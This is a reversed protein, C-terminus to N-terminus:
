KIGGVLEALEMVCAELEENKAKLEEYKEELTPEIIIEEKPFLVKKEENTLEVMKDNEYKYNFNGEKDVLQYKLHVHAHYEENGQEILKDTDLPQEFVSSFLKIVVGVENLRAYIKNTVIEM